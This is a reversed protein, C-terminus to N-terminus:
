VNLLTNNGLHKHNTSKSIQMTTPSIKAISISVDETRILCDIERKSLETEGKWVTIKALTSEIESKWVVIKGFTM